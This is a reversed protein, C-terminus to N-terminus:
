SHRRAMRVTIVACEADRVVASAVSGFLARAVGTRGHTGMVIGDAHSSKAHAVLAAATGGEVLLEGNCTVGRSRARGVADDVIEGAEHRLRKIWSESSAGTAPVYSAIQAPDAVVCVILEATHQRAIDIALSFAEESCESGDLPVLLKRFM